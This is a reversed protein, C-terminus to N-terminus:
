ISMAKKTLNDLMLQLDKKNFSIKQIEGFKGQINRSSGVYKKEM